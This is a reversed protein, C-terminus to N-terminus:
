ATEGCSKALEEPPATPAPTQPTPLEPRRLEPRRLQLWAFM